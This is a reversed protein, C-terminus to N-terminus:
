KKTMKRLISMCSSEKVLLITLVMQMLMKPYNEIKKIEHILINERNMEQDIIKTLLKTAEESSLREGHKGVPKLEFRM